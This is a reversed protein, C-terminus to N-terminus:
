LTTHLVTSHQFTDRSIFSEGNEHNVGALNRKHPSTQAVIRSAVWLRTAWM